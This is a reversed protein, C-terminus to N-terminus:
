LGGRARRILGSLGRVPLQALKDGALDCVKEVRGALQTFSTLVERFFTKASPRSMTNDGTVIIAPRDLGASRSIAADNDDVILTVQGTAPGAPISPPHLPRTSPSHRMVSTNGVPPSEDTSQYQPDSDFHRGTVTKNYPMERLRVDRYSGRVLRFRFPPRVARGSRTTLQPRQSPDNADQPTTGLADGRFFDDDEDESNNVPVVRPLLPPTADRSLDATAAEAAAPDADPVTTTTARTDNQAARDSTRATTWWDDPLQASCKWLRYRNITIPRSKPTLQVRYVVDTLQEMVRYPGTWAQRFKPSLGRRMRPQYVWVAQGPSFSDRVSVRDYRDKTRSHTLRLHERVFDHISSLRQKLTLVYETESAAPDSPPTPLSLEAPGRLSRGLMVQCPAEHTAEHEASRYSLCVFDLWKDWDRQNESVYLSLANVLTRNFREVLSNGQPYLSTTRTKHVGFLKCVEAMVASEFNSGRDSHLQLPAGFNCFFGRVLADAVTVAEQNPLAAVFPWKSYYDMAVLVYRNGSDTIPLPGLIDISVREMPAGVRYDQMPGHARSIPGKRKACAVCSRCYAIISQRRRPWYFL